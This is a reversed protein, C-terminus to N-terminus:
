TTARFGSGGLDFTEGWRVFRPCWSQQEGQRKNRWGPRPLETAAGCSAGALRNCLGYRWSRTKASGLAGFLVMSLAHEVGADWMPARVPLCHTGAAGSGGARGCRDPELPSSTKLQSVAFIPRLMLKLRAPTHRSM